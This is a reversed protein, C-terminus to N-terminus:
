LTFPRTLTEPDVRRLERLEEAVQEARDGADKLSKTLKGLQDPSEAIKAFQEKVRETASPKAM